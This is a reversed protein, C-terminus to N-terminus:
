LIKHEVVILAQARINQQGPLSRVTIGVGVLLAIIGLLALYKQSFINM